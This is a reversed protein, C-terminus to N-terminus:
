LVRDRGFSLKGTPLWTMGNGINILELECSGKAETTTATVKLAQHRPIDIMRPSASVPPTCIITHRDSRDSGGTFHEQSQRLM